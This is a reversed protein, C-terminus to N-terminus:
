LCEITSLTSRLNELCPVFNAELIDNFVDEFAPQQKTDKVIPENRNKLKCFECKLNDKENLKSDCQSCICHGCKLKIPTNLIFNYKTKCLSCDDSCEHPCACKILKDM